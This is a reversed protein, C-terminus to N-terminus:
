ILVAGAVVALVMLGFGTVIQRVRRPGVPPHKVEPRNPDRM